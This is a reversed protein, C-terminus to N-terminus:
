NMSIFPKSKIDGIDLHVGILGDIIKRIIEVKEGDIALKEFSSIPSNLFYKIIDIIGLDEMYILSTTDEFQTEEICNKCILGGQEVNLCELEVRSQCITCESLNPMYGLEKLVKLEYALVLTAYRQKRKEILILTDILIRFLRPMPMEEMLVKDTFELIYSSNMYKDVDEGLSYFSQLIDARNLIYSNRGKYIDYRGYTFPKMSLNSKARGKEAITSGAILKGKEKTFISIINSGDSAKIRKLIIGDAEFKM